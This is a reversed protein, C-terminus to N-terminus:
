KKRMVDVMYCPPYVYELERVDVQYGKTVMKDRYREANTKANKPHTFLRSHKKSIINTGMTAQWKKEAM